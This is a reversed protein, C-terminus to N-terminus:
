KTQFWILEPLLVVGEKKVLGQTKQGVQVSYIGDQMDPQSLELKGWSLRQGQSLRKIETESLAIAPMNKVVNEMDAFRTPCVPVIERKEKTEARGSKAM